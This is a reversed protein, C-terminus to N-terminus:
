TVMDGAKPISKRADEFRKRNVMTKALTNQWRTVLQDDTEDKNRGIDTEIADVLEQSFDNTVIVM